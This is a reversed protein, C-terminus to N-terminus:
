GGFLRDLIGSREDPEGDTGEGIDKLKKRLDALHDTAEAEKADARAHAEDAEVEATRYTALAEAATDARIANSEARVEAAKRLRAERRWLWLLVAVAAGLGAVLYWAM